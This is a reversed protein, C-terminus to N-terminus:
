LHQGLDQGIEEPTVQPAYRAVVEGSRGVLFKTFNWAIDENGDEDPHGSKLYRYLDCAGNGNVEIKSFMPFEVGYKSTAFALIEADTGPEQKGFQNCPFALVTFGSAGNAEHLTRLGQTSHSHPRM